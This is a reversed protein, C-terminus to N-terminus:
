KCIGFRQMEQECTDRSIYRSEGITRTFEQNTNLNLIVLKLLHGDSSRKCECFTIFQKECQETAQTFSMVPLCMLFALIIKRM